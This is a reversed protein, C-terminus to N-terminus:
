GRFEAANARIMKPIEMVLKQIIERSANSRGTALLDM